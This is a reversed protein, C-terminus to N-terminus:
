ELIEFKTRSTCRFAFPLKTKRTLDKITDWHKIIQKVMEWYSYGNKSPPKFFFIGLNHQQYLDRQHRTSQIRLDQTLIISGMEGAKPIWEEDKAGSGFVEPISLVEFRIKEKLNLPEQIKNLGNALQRPFNEDILAIM